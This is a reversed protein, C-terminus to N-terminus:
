GDNMSSTFQKSSWGTSQGCWPGSASSEEAACGLIAGRLEAIEEQRMLARDAFPERRLEDGLPQRLSEALQSTARGPLELCVRVHQFRV